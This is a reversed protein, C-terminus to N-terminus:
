EGTSALALCDGGPRQINNLVRHTLYVIYIYITFFSAHLLLTTSGIFHYFSNYAMEMSNPESCIICLYSTAPEGHLKICM